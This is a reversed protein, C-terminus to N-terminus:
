VRLVSPPSSHGDQEGSSNSAVAGRRTNLFCTGQLAMDHLEVVKERQRIKVSTNSNVDQGAEVM